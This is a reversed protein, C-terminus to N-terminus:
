KKQSTIYSKKTQLLFNSGGAGGGSSLAGTFAKTHVQGRAGKGGLLDVPASHAESKPQKVSAAQKLYAVAESYSQPVGVIGNNM